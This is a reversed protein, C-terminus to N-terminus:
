ILSALWKRENNNLFKSIKSYVNLHYEFLYNKEKNTLLNFNILDKEIPALTLNEFYLKSNIKKIYVLNEIRIGYHGKKYYGPENSVIMGEELKITDIKTISQPGEHVNSFFGVGHGTGHAYDLGDKKLFQRAKVDVKKGTNFKKLNTTAVAIHGKLVKTFKDKISNKQKSFCITRTVDTTGFKYQGGSDCLFIDNKKITKNSKKSARYHVIAGNSGTGAITNFSPFLYNKNLKRLKKLKNQSDIETIKKKNVNKIWYIFKTLAVGDEIHANIMHNIESLNKISKLKYCPDDKNSIKFKSKIINENFISCSLPDIIFKKGKLKKILHEFKEPNIIQKKSLKKDKIIKSVKEKQTILFLGKNKGIILRCNPIPSNPNDSGRINLVWAVNEPASIFLYDTKNLKLINVIKNIKSKFSEGTIKSSLSFFKKAKPNRKKYIEDILNNNIQKLELFKGFYGYLQRKTLLNPDFGLTLNKIVSRPLFKHIEIIKFQKGSQQQAQMTYRGDVFLYSNKKLIVALGASGSFNSIIKLRDIAAYESFFEDNKPVIYGDIDFQNFKKRLQRIRKKIM